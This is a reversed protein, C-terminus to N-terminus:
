AKWTVWIAVELFRDNIYLNEFEITYNKKGLATSPLNEKLIEVFQNQMTSRPLIWVAKCGFELSKKMIADFNPTIGKRLDFANRDYETGGWPPALCVLDFKKSAPAKFKLFNTQVPELKHLVGYIRANHKLNQLKIPDIDICTVHDSYRAFQISNGGSGCFADLVSQNKYKKAIYEAIPEPTVSYWSEPDLLTGEDFRSFLHYKKRVFNLYKSTLGLKKLQQKAEVMSLIRKNTKLKVTKYKIDLKHHWSQVESKSHNQPNGLEEQEELEEKLKALSGHSPSAVALYKVRRRSLDQPKSAKKIARLYQLKSKIKAAFM